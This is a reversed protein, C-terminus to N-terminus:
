TPFKKKKLRFYWVENQRDGVSFTKKRSSVTKNLIQIYILFRFVFRIIFYYKPRLLAFCLNKFVVSFHCVDPNELDRLIIIIIKCFTVKTFLITKSLRVFSYSRTRDVHFYINTRFFFSGTCGPVHLISTHYFVSFIASYARFSGRVRFGPM